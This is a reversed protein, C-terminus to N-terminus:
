RTTRGGRGRPGALLPGHVVDGRQHDQEGAEDALLVMLAALLDAVLVIGFPAPWDGVPLVLIGDSRVRLLLAIAVALLGASGAMGAARQVRPHRHALVGVIAAGLPVLIPAIVLGSM